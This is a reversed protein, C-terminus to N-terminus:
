LKKFAISPDELEIIRRDQTQRIVRRLICIESDERQVEGLCNIFLIENQKKIKEAIVHM